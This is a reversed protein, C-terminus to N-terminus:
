VAKVLNGTNALCRTREPIERMRDGEANRPSSVNGCVCPAADAAVAAPLDKAGRRCAHGRIRPPRRPRPDGAAPADEAGQGGAGGRSRPKRRRWRDGDGGAEGM